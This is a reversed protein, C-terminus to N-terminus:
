KIEEIMQQFTPIKLWSNLGRITSLRRDVPNGSVPEIDCSMRFKNKFALLMEYKSVSNSFVHYVGKWLRDGSMIKNCILGFQHTTIGNWLHDTYGKILGGSKAEHRFWELLGCHRELEPGVVSTRITLCDTPEGLSKSLGYIDDPSIPAMENYPASGGIGFACDTTIHILKTGYQRALIHPLASNVFFTGASNNMVHPVIVGIANIVYDVNGVHNVFDTFYSNRKNVYDEMLIQADFDTRTCARIDYESSLTKYVESGLMGSVGLLLVKKV